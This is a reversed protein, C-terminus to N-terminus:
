EYRLAVLPDVKTARRAPLYCALLAVVVLLASVALFTRPDTASVGFLVGQMLKTLGVAAPVGFAVGLVALKLGQGLVIKLVNWRQAGLAMRIGFENTRGLVSISMVGYIGIMALLLAIGAFSTMLWNTVRTTAVSRAMAAEITGVDSFPLEPDLGALQQRMAPVISNPDNSTRVILRMETRLWQAYPQYIYPTSKEDLKRNKVNPVVGVVTLWPGGGIRLRKGLPDENPWNTRALTEDVIAVPLSNDTDQSQFSRGKLVPMGLASFYGPTTNRLWAVKSPQGATSERGEVVFPGGQGDGSFPIVNCLEAFQVGPLSRLRALLSEYFEKSQAKTYRSSPLSISAMLVNQARFGPNVSLLNEFSQLLLAAGILLVLSLALQSVVFANKIRQSAPSETGRGSSKIADQLNVRASRIAPILGCALATAVALGATFLLVRADIRVLELHPIRTAALARLGALVWTAFLLGALAGACALLSSEILAQRALRTTSAGLCHRLALERRQSVARALLLNALNACAILLVLGIAGLLLLLPARVDGVIRQQLPMLVTIVGNGLAGEGLQSGYDRAFGEYLGAIERQAEAPSVNPKLRGVTSLNWSNTDQPDLGKPVWLQVHDSNREAPDPFDFDAPMIGIISMPVNDLKISQGLVSLQGGFRRQWLGYSLMVVNNNGPTDEEKSFTRGYLPQRGLVEFYNFTVAAGPLSEAEGAGTMVLSGDEFAAIKEFSQTRARYYAFMADNLDVESLGKAPASHWFTVLRDSQPLALPRLLVSNVVSFIATNAGIGLALTIVAIVTFIPRKLLIRVGFQIDQLISSM